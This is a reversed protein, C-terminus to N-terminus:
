PTNIFTIHGESANLHVFTEQANAENASIDAVVAPIHLERAIIAGHSLVGGTRFIIGLANSYLHTYEPGATPLVLITGVRPSDNTNHTYSLKGSVNGSSVPTANIINGEVNTAETLKTIKTLTEPVYLKKEKEYQEKHLVAVTKLYKTSVTSLEDLTLYFINDSLKLSKGLQLLQQRINNVRNLLYFRLNDKIVIIEHLKKLSSSVYAYPHLKKTTLTSKQAALLSTLLATDEHWRPSAFEFDNFSRNGFERVIHEVTSGPANWIKTSALYLDHTDQQLSLTSLEKGQLQKSLLGEIYALRFVASYEEYFFTIERTLQELRATTSKLVLNPAVYKLTNIKEQAFFIHTNIRSLIYSNSISNKLINIFNSFFNGRNKLSPTASTLAYEMGMNRNLFADEIRLNFYLRSFLYHVYQHGEFPTIPLDLARYAQGLSGEYSFLGSLISYTMPTPREVIHAAETRHFIDNSLFDKQFEDLVKSAYTNNNM